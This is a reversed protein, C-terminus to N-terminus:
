NLKTYGRRPRFNDDSLTKTVTRPKRPTPPSQFFGCWDDLVVIPWVSREGPAVFRPGSRRCYGEYSEPTLAQFYFCNKCDM